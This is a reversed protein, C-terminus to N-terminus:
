LCSAIYYCIFTNQFVSTHLFRRTAIFRKKDKCTSLNMESGKPVSTFTCQVSQANAVSDDGNCNSDELSEKRLAPDCGSDEGPELTEKQPTHEKRLWLKSQFLFLMFNKRRIWNWCRQVSQRAEGSLTFLVCEGQENCMGPNSGNLVLKEIVPLDGQQSALLMTNVGDKNFTTDRAGAALLINVCEEHNCSYAFYVAIDGFDNKEQLLRQEKGQIDHREQRLLRSVSHPFGGAAAFHLATNGFDNRAFIDAKADLLCDLIDVSDRRCSEHLATNGDWGAINVNAGHRILLEVADKSGTACAILLASQGHGNRLNVDVGTGQDLLVGLLDIHCYKTAIHLPADGNTTVANVPAGRKLLEVALEKRDDGGMRCCISLPTHGNQNCLTVDAGHQLLQQAIHMANSTACIILPTDESSNKSNVDCNHSLLLAVIDANDDNNCCKSLADSTFPHRWSSDSLHALLVKIIEVYGLECALSLVNEGPKSFVGLDAGNELLCQVTQLSGSKCAAILPSDGAPPAFNVSMGQAVLLEVVKYYGKRCATTLITDEDNTTGFIDQCRPLDANVVADFIM